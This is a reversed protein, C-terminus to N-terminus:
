YSRPYGYRDGFFCQPERGSTRWWASMNGCSRGDLAEDYPCDCSGNHSPLRLPTDPHITTQEISANNCNKLLGLIVAAFMMSWFLSKLEEM